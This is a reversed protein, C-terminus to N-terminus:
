RHRAALALREGLPGCELWILDFGDATRWVRVRRFNWEPNKPALEPHAVLEDWGRWAQKADRFVLVVHRLPLRRRCADVDAPTLSLHVVPRRAEWALEPGLNSMVAEGAPIERNLLVTIQLLSLVAPTGRQAAVDNAERLGQQTEHVGWTLALVVVCAAVALRGSRSGGPMRAVLGVLALLGGVEALVRVPYAYRLWPVGLAAMVIGAILVALAALAAVARPRSAREPWAVFAWVPLAAVLLARVGTFLALVLAGLNRALKPALLRFAAGAGPPAAASPLHTVSFWSRGQVGDWLALTSLDWAPTGFARWKYFWWPALPLAFGLLVLAAARVRGREASAAAALAFLPAFALMNGRFLGALGLVLGFVFPRRAATGFALMTLAIALGLTFPPETFGGVAFHQSEPDLMFVGAAGLALAGRAWRPADPAHRRLLRLTAGAILCATSMSCLLPFVLVLWELEDPRVFQALPRGGIVIRAPTLRFVAAEALVLGPQVVALPWPPAPHRALEIPLAFTTGLHGTTALQRAALAYQAPDYSLVPSRGGLDWARAHLLWLTCSAAIIGLLLFPEAISKRTARM